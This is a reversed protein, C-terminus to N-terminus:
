GVSDAMKYLLENSLEYNQTEIIFVFGVNQWILNNKNIETYLIGNIEKEVFSVVDAKLYDSIYKDPLSTRVQKFTITEAPNDLFEYTTMFAQDTVSYDSSSLSYGEPIYSPEITTFDANEQTKEVQNEPSFYKYAYLSVFTIATVIALALLMWGLLVRHNKQAKKKTKTKKAVKDKEIAATFYEKIVQGKTSDPHIDAVDITDPDYKEAEEPTLSVEPESIDEIKEEIKEIKKETKPDILDETVDKTLESHHAEKRIKKNALGVKVESPLTYIDDDEKTDTKAPIEPELVPNLVNDDRAPDLSRDLSSKEAETSIVSPKINAAKADEGLIDLLIGSAELTSKENGPDAIEIYSGASENESSGASDFDDESPISLESIKSEFVPGEALPEEASPTLGLDKEAEETIPRFSETTQIPEEETVVELKRPLTETTTKEPTENSTASSAAEVVEPVIPFNIEEPGETEVDTVTNPEPKIANV